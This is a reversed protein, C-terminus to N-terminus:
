QRNLRKFYLNLTQWMYVVAKIFTDVTRDDVRFMRDNTSYLLDYTFRPGTDVVDMIIRWHGEALTQISTNTDAFGYRDVGALIVKEWMSDVAARFTGANSSDMQFQNTDPLYHLDFLHTGCQPHEIRVTWQSESGTTAVTVDTGGFGSKQVGNCLYTNLATTGLRSRVAEWMARAADQLTGYWKTDLWLKGSRDQLNFSFAEAFITITPTWQQIGITQINCEWIPLVNEAARLAQQLTTQTVTHQMPPPLPKLKAVTNESQMHALLVDLRREIARLPKTMTGHLNIHKQVAKCHIAYLKHAYM